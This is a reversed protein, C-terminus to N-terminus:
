SLISVHVHFTSAIYSPIKAIFENRLLPFRLTSRKHRSHRATQLAAATRARTAARRVVVVLVARARPVAGTCRAAIMETRDVLVADVVYRQREEVFRVGDSQQRRGNEDEEVRCQGPINAACESHAHGATESFASRVRGCLGVVM